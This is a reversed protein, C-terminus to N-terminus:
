VFKTKGPIAVTPEPVDGWAYNEPGLREKSRLLKNWTMEQGTYTCMRGMIAILTSNCM